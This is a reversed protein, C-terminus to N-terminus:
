QSARGGFVRSVESGIGGDLAALLGDLGDQGNTEYEQFAMGPDVHGMQPMPQAAAIPELSDHVPQMMERWGAADPLHQIGQRCVQLLLCEKSGTFEITSHLINSPYM